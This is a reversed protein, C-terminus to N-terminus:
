YSNRSTMGNPSTMVRNGTGTNAVAVFLGGGCVGGFWDGCVGPMVEGCRWGKEVGPIVGVWWWGCVGVVDGCVRGVM